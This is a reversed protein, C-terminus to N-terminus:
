MIVKYLDELWVDSSNWNKILLNSFSKIVIFLKSGWKMSHSPSKLGLDFDHGILSVVVSFPLISFQYRSWCM